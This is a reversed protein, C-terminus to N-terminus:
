RSKKLIKTSPTKTLFLERIVFNVRERGFMALIGHIVQNEDHEGNLIGELTRTRYNAENIKFTELLNNLHLSIWYDDPMMDEIRIGNKDPRTHFKCILGPKKESKEM